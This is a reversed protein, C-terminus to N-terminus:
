SRMAREFLSRAMPGVKRRYLFTSLTEEMEEWTGVGMKRALDYFAAHFYAASMEEPDRRPHLDAREALSGVYLVWLWLQPEREVGGGDRSCYEFAERIRRLVPKQTGFVKYMQAHTSPPVDVAEHSTAVRYWYRAALATAAETYAFTLDHPAAAEATRKANIEDNADNYIELLKSSTLTARFSFAIMFDDDLMEPFQQLAHCIKALFRFERLRVLLHPRIGAQEFGNVPEQPMLGIATLKMKADLLTRVFTTHDVLDEIDFAPRCLAFSGRLCEHWLISSLLKRNMSNADIGRGDESQILQQLTRAHLAAHEHQQGSIEMSLLSFMQTLLQEDTRVGRKSISRRLSEYARAKYNMAMMKIRRDTTVTAAANALRALTANGICEDALAAHSTYSFKNRYACDKLAGKEINVIFPYFMELDFRLLTHAEATMSILTSDFPDHSGGDLVTVPSPPEFAAEHESGPEDDRGGSADDRREPWSRARAIKVVQPTEILPSGRSTNVARPATRGRRRREAALRSLHTNIFRRDNTRSPGSRNPVFAFTDHTSNVSM